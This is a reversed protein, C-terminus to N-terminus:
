GRSSVLNEADSDLHQARAQSTEAHQEHMLYVLHASAGFVLELRRESVAPQGHEAVAVIRAQKPVRVVRM